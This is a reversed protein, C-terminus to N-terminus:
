CTKIGMDSLLRNISDKDKPYICQKKLENAFKKLEDEWSPNLDYQANFLDLFGADVYNARVEELVEKESELIATIMDGTFGEEFMNELEVKRDEWFGM